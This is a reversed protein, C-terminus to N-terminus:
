RYFTERKLMKDKPNKDLKENGVKIEIFPNAKAFPELADSLSDLDAQLIPLWSRLTSSLKQKQSQSARQRLM